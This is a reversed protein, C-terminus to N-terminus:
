PSVAEGLHSLFSALLMHNFRLIVGLWKLKWRECDPLSAALRLKVYRTVKREESEKLSLHSAIM